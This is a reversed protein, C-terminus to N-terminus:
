ESRRFFDKLDVDKLNVSIPEGTYHPGSSASQQGMQAKQEAALNVAPTIGTSSQSPASSSQAQPTAHMSVPLLEVATKDSFRAAAEEARVTPEDAAADSKTENNTESKAQYSPEVFVFNNPAASNDAAPKTAPKADAKPESRVDMVRPSFPSMPRSAPASADATVTKPEASVQAIANAHLTLVLRGAPGPTLEYACAKELDVVVRTTPHSQGDMGIRVGKVGAAGVAIHSQGTVMVTEPLDVVVRAPSDLTSLKPTVAGSAKMEVRIADTDRIVNVRDLQSPTQAAAAVVLMLLMSVFMTVQQKRM